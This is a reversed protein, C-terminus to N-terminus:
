LAAVGMHSGIWLDDQPAHAKRAADLAAEYKATAAHIAPRDTGAVDLDMDYQAEAADYAARLTEIM